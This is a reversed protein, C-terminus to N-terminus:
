GRSTFRNTDVAYKATIEDLLALLTKAPGYRSNPCQPSVVIFPFDAQTAAIKPPGHTAV